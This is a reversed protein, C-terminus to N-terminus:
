AHTIKRVVIIGSLLVLVAGVGILPLAWPPRGPRAGPLAPPAAQPGAMDLPKARRAAAPSIAALDWVRRPEHRVKSTVNILPVPEPFEMQFMKRKPRHEFDAETIVKERFHIGEAGEDPSLKNIIVLIMHFPLWGQGVSRVDAFHFLIAPLGPGNNSDLIRLPVAGRELDVWYQRRKDMNVTFTLKVVRAGNIEADEEVASLVWDPRGAAARTLDQSLDPPM